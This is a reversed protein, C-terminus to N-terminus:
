FKSMRNRIYISTYLLFLHTCYANIVEVYAKNNLLCLLCVFGLLLCIIGIAYLKANVYNKHILFFLVFVMIFAMTYQVQMQNSFVCYSTIFIHLTILAIEYKYKFIKSLTEM